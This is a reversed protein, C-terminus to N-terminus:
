EQICSKLKDINKIENELMYCNGLTLKVGTEQITESPIVLAVCLAHETNWIECGTGNVNTSAYSLCDPVSTPKRPVPDRAGSGTVLVGLDARSVRVTKCVCLLQVLGEVLKMFYLVM